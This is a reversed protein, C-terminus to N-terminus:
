ELLLVLSRLPSCVSKSCWRVDDCTSSNRAAAHHMGEQGRANVQAMAAPDVQNDGFGYWILFAFVGTLAVIFLIVQRRVFAPTFSYCHGHCPVFPVSTFMSEMDLCM